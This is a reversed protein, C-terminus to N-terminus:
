PVDIEMELDPASTNIELKLGATDAISTEYADGCACLITLTVSCRSYEGPIM